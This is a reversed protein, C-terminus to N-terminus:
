GRHRGRGLGRHEVVECPIYKQCRERFATPLEAPKVGLCAALLKRNGAVNTVVPMTKHGKINEFVVVPSRGARDLEFLM